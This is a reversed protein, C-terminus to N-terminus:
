AHYGHWHVPEIVVVVLAGHMPMAGHMANTGVTNIVMLMAARVAVSMTDVSVDLIPMGDHHADHLPMMCPMLCAMM